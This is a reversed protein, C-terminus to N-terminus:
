AVGASMVQCGEYTTIDSFRVICATARENYVVEKGTMRSVLDSPRAGYREGYDTVVRPCIALLTALKGTLLHNYPPVAECSTKLALTPGKGSRENKPTQQKAMNARKWEWALLSDM